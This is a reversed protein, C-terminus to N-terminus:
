SQHRGKINYGEGAGRCAADVLSASLSHNEVDNQCNIFITIFLCNESNLLFKFAANKCHVASPPTPNFTSWSAFMRQKINLHIMKSNILFNVTAIGSRHGSITSHLMLSIIENSCEYCRFMKVLTGEPIWKIEYLCDLPMAPVNSVDVVLM